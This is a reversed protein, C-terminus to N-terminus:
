TPRTSRPARPGTGFPGARVGFIKLTEPASSKRNFVVRLTGTEGPQLTLSGTNCNSRGDAGPNDVRCCLTGKTSGVNAVELELWAQAGLDWPGGTPVLDIGPWDHAHGFDLRLAQSEGWPLARITVDRQPVTATDFDGEFDFLVRVPADEGTDTHPEFVSMANPVIFCGTLLMFTIVGAPLLSHRCARPAPHIRGLLDYTM